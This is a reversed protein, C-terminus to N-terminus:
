DSLQELTHRSLLKALPELDVQGQAETKDAHQLANKYEEGELKIKELITERGPLWAGLKLCIIMCAVARATRGNGDEFPHIWCLRWLAYAALVYENEREWRSHLDVVFDGMYKQVENFPPPDHSSKKIDVNHDRYKGPEDVLGITVHSHLWGIIDGNIRVNPLELGVSVLDRLLDFQRQLNGEAMQKFLHPKIDDRLLV